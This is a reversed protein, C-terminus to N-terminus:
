VKNDVLGSALGIERIVSEALDTRVGSSKKPWAVWLGGAPDLQRALHWFRAALDSTETTFYVLVDQTGEGGRTVEVDDPLVGLVRDFGDPAGVLAVRSGAKIGLKRPLP